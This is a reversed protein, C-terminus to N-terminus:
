SPCGAVQCGFMVRMRWTGDPFVVKKNGSQYLTLATRYAERFSKLFAHVQSAGVACARRLLESMNGRKVTTKPSSLPSVQMVKRLPKFHHKGERRLAARADRVAEELEKQCYAEYSMEAAEAPLMTEPPKSFHLTEKEPGSQDTMWYPRRAEIGQVGPKSVFGQWHCPNKSLRASVPNTMLYRTAARLGEPSDIIQDSFSSGRDFASGSFAYGQKKRIRQLGLTLMRNVWELFDPSRGDNDLYIIHYHNGMVMLSLISINLRKAAVGMCYAILELVEPDPLLLFRRSVCRRSVHHLM